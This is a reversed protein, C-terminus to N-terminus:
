GKAATTKPKWWNNAKGISLGAGGIDGIAGFIASEWAAAGERRAIEQQQKVQQATSLGNFGTGLASNFSGMVDGVGKAMYGNLFASAQGRMTASLEANGSDPMAPTAQLAAMAGKVRESGGSLYKSFSGRQVTTADGAIESGGQQDLYRAFEMRDDRNVM